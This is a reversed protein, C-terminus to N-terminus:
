IEKYFVKEYSLDKIKKYDIIVEFENRDNFFAFINKKSIKAKFVYGDKYFRKAFWEATGYNTTWSIANFDKEHHSGRYIEVEDPLDNYVKFDSENMLINKDAMKFLKILDEVKTNIDKNPNESSVWAFRLGNAFDKKDLLSSCINYFLLRYPKNVILLIDMFEKQNKIKDAFSKLYNSMANKDKFIDFQKIEGNEKIFVPNNTIFPHHVFFPLDKDKHPKTNLLTIAIDKVTDLITM